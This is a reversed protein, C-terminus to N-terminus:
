PIESVIVDAFDDDDDERPDGVIVQDPMEDDCDEDHVDSLIIQAPDADETFSSEAEPLLGLARDLREYAGAPLSDFALGLGGQNRMVRAKAVLPVKEGPLPIAVQLEDGVILDPHSAARIGGSSIDEANLVRAV